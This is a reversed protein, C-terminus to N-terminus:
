ILYKKTVFVSSCLFLHSCNLMLMEKAWIHNLCVAVIISVLAADKMESYVSRGKGELCAPTVLYKRLLNFVHLVAQTCTDSIAPGKNRNSM